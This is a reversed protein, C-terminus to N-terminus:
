LSLLRHQFEFVALSIGFLPGVIFCRQLSGRFLAAVGEQKVTDTWIRAISRCKVSPDQLAAFAEAQYRTKVLDMPTAAVAGIAGALFGCSLVSPLALQDVGRWQRTLECCSAFSQFFIMSFPIDRMLTASSGRYLGRVGLAKVTEALGLPRLQMNIKVMEMPNTALVQCGGAVAGALMGDLPRLHADSPLGHFRALHRRCLDNVTLKIAKEPTVGLLNASLGRYYGRLGSHRGLDLILNIRYRYPM